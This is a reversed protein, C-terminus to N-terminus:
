SEDNDMLEIMKRYRSHATRVRRPKVPKGFKESAKQAIESLLAERQNKPCRSSLKVSHFRGAREFRERNWRITDIADLAEDTTDPYGLKDNTAYESFTARVARSARSLTAVIKDRRKLRVGRAELKERIRRRADAEALERAREEYRAGVWIAEAESLIPKRGAGGRKGGSGKGGM